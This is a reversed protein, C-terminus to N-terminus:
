CTLPPQALYIYGADILERMNRFFFTLLLTPHPRRGCRRGGHARDPPIAGESTSSRASGTGIATILAQIEQNELGQASAGERREPDQRPDAPDGPQRPGAGAEGVAASDGEVIYIECCEPGHAPLGRAKGPLGGGGPVVQTARHRSGTEGGDTGERGVLEEHRHAECRGPAGRAVDHPARERDDRRAVADHHQRAETKTQGEFQPERLKVSVIATLGERVDEGLLNDDKEKLLGKHARVTVVNTLAKKFGEEHMGGEHTHDHQRVLLDLRTGRTWQLAVEAEADQEKAEM